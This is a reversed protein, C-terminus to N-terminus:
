RRRTPPNSKPRLRGRLDELLEVSRRNEAHMQRYREQNRGDGASMQYLDVASVIADLAQRAATALVSTDRAPYPHPAKVAYATTARPDTPLWAAVAPEISRLYEEVHRKVRAAEALTLGSEYVEDQLTAPNRWVVDLRAANKPRSSPLVLREPGTALRVLEARMNAGSEYKPVRAGM